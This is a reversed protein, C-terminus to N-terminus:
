LLMSTDKPPLRAARNCSGIPFQRRSAPPLATQTRCSLTFLLLDHLKDYFVTTNRFYIRRRQRSSLRPTLDLTSRALTLMAPLIGATIQYWTTSNAVICMPSSISRPHSTLVLINTSLRSVQHVMVPAHFPIIYSKTPM